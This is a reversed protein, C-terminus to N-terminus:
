DCDYFHCHRVNNHYCDLGLSRLQHACKSPISPSILSQDVIKKIWLILRKHCFAVADYPSVRWGLPSVSNMWALRACCPEILRHWRRLNVVDAPHADSAAPNLRRRDIPGKHLSISFGLGNGEFCQSLLYFFSLQTRKPRQLVRGEMSVLPHCILPAKEYM